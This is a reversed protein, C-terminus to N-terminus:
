KSVGIEKLATETFTAHFGADIVGHMSDFFDQVADSDLGPFQASSASLLVRM